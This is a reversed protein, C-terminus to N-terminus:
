RWWKKNVEIDLTNGETEVKVHENSNNLQVYAKDKAEILNVTTNDTDIEINQFSKGSINVEKNEKNSFLGFIINALSLLTLLALLIVIYRKKM